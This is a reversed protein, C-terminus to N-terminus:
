SSRVHRCLLGLIPVLQEDVENRVVCHLLYIFWAQSLSNAPLCYIVGFCPSVRYALGLGLYVSAKVWVGIKVRCELGLGLDLGLWM